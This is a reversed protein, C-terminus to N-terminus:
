FYSFFALLAGILAPITSAGVALSLTEAVDYVAVVV